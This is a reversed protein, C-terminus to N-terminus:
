EGACDITTTEYCGSVVFPQGVNGGDPNFCGYGICIGSFLQGLVEYEEGNTCHKLDGDAWECRECPPTYRIDVCPEQDDTCGLSTNRILTEKLNCQAWVAVVPIVVMGVISLITKTNM